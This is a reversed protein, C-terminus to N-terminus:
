DADPPTLAPRADRELRALASQEQARLLRDLHPYGTACERAWEKSFAGSRIEDLAAELLTELKLGQFRPLRSFLGYQASLPARRLAPLWGEQAAHSLYDRLEGALLLDTLVAPPPCGSQLLVDAAANLLHHFAPLLTQQLFLDLQAEQALSMEIAGARLSGMAKALALLTEWATGTADQSIGVFSHFGSGDLYRARVAAGLTRPAIMGVDVFPPPEIYGFAISSGSAFVLLHGRQLGPSVKELYVEPLAEDPLLLMLIHCKRIIEAIPQPTFGDQRARQQAAESDIGVLVRLGSDRLNSAVPQGLRGYGIIGVTRGSLVNLSADAEHYIVTM